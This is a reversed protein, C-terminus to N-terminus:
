FAEGVSLHVADSDTSRAYDVRINIRKSKLVMFRLGIGYSPIIEQDNVESFSNETYGGGAFGVLGWRESMRWRAEVQGRASGIGLYDTAAFGRLGITCLDWLPVTGSKRCGGIEWALVFHDTLEHYSSFSAEYSEYKNDSGFTPDNFLGKVNLLNGSYANTPMDRSDREIFLGLGASVSETSLDFITSQVNINFTQKADIARGFVGLYWRGAIKRAIQSYFFGGKVKWNVAIGLGSADPARLPLNMDAYGVAGAFRWTDAGWYNEQGIAVAYSESSSYMAGGGTVSAPQTKKQEETQGYFYAGGVVLAEGITPDSIPIPVVVFNGKELKLKLEDGRVDPTRSKHAASEDELQGELLEKEDEVVSQALASTTCYASFCAFVIAGLIFNLKMGRINAFGRFIPSSRIREQASHWIPSTYASDAPDFDPCTRGKINAETTLIQSVSRHIATFHLDCLRGNGPPRACTEVHTQIILADPVLLAATLTSGLPEDNTEHNEGLLVM